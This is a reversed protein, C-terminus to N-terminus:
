KSYRPHQQQPLLPPVSEGREKSEYRSSHLYCLLLLLPLLSLMLLPLASM